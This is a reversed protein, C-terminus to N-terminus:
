NFLKSFDIKSVPLQSDQEVQAKNCKYCYDLKIVNAKKYTTVKTQTIEIRQKFM